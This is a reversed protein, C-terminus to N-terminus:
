LGNNRLNSDQRRTSTADNASHDLAYRRASRYRRLAVAGGAVVLAATLGLLVLSLTRMGDDVLVLTINQATASGLISATLLVSARQSQAFAAAWDAARGRDADALASDDGHLVARRIARRTAPDHPTRTQLEASLRLAPMAAAIAAVVFAVSVATGVARVSAGGPEPALLLVTLAVALAVAFTLVVPWIRM